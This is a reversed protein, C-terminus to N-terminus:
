AVDPSDFDFDPGLPKPPQRFKHSRLRRIKAKTQFQGVLAPKPGVANSM